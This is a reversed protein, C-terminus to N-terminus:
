NNFDKVTSGGLEELHKLISDCERKLFPSLQIAKLLATKADSVALDRDEKHIQLKAKLFYLEGQARYIEPTNPELARAKNIFNLGNAIENEPNMKRKLKWEAELQCLEARKLYPFALNSHAEIGKDLAKRANRFFLEPPQNQNMAYRAKLIEVFGNNVLAWRHTPNIELARQISQEAQQLSEIPSKQHQLLYIAQEIYTDSLNHHFGAYNPNKEIANRFSEIALPFSSRPDLGKSMEYRAEITYVLGLINYNNSFNPNIEISKKLSDVAKRIAPRPDIGKRLEWEAREEHAVGMDNYATYNPTVQISKQFNEAAQLLSGRPDLGFDIEYEGKRVYSIGVRNYPQAYNPNIRIARHYNEIALDFSKRCDEGAIREKEAQWWYATGMNLYVNMDNPNFRVALKATEIAKRLAMTSDQGHDVQNNTERIYIESKKNYAQWSQPNIRLAKDCSVMAQEFDSEKQSGVLINLNIIQVWKQCDGEYVTADSRAIEMATAYARGANRYSQAAAQFKGAEQEELGAVLHIDGELKKSDYMWHAEHFAQQLRELAQDFRKEYFAIMGEVYAPADTKVGTSLKLYYVVPQRFETEIQIRRLTRLEKNSIREAEQLANQYLFGWTKGLALAIEPTRYGGNWAKMLHDKAKDFESLALYGRGIAYNGQAQVSESMQFMRQEIRKLRERAIERERRVDHLPLTYAYRLFGEIKEAEETFEQASQIQLAATRRAQLWLAGFLFVGLVAISATVVLSKHKSAKKRLRYFFSAAQAQIPEGQIYRELDQALARASEYRQNPEKEICKMAITELDKPLAPNTKRVPVPDSQLVKLLVETSTQGQFPPHSCLLEYLTAGLSYVDTRRDLNHIEGRAQEPAMYSPSGVLIGTRTLGPAALERALGFDMVYPKWGEDTQEVMVNAPKLDRHILGTKHAAHISQAVEKMIQVKQELTLLSSAEKLTIGPIYQMAIFPKGGYEGVEYVKCVHEDDVRAQARAERFFQSLQDSDETRLFKLAVSRGLERDYAKFVQAMSGSGLLEKVEYKSAPDGITVPEPSKHTPSPENGSESNQSELSAAILNAKQLLDDPKMQKSKM